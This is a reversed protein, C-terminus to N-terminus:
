KKGAELVFGEPPEGKFLKIQRTTLKVVHVHGELATMLNQVWMIDTPTLEIGKNIDLITQSDDELYDTFVKKWNAQTVLQNDDRTIRSSKNSSRIPSTTYGMIDDPIGLVVGGPAEAIGIERNSEEIEVQRGKMTSLKPRGPTRRRDSTTQARRWCITVGMDEMSGPNKKLFTRMKFLKYDKRTNDLHDVLYNLSQNMRLYLTTLSVGGADCCYFKRDHSADLIMADIEPQLARAYEETYYPYKRSTSSVEMNLPIKGKYFDEAEKTTANSM